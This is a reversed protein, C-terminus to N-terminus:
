RDLDAKVVLFPDKKTPRKQPDINLSFRWTKGTNPEFMTYTNEPIKVQLLGSDQPNAYVTGDIIISDILIPDKGHTSKVFGIEIDKQEGIEAIKEDAKQPGQAVPKGTRSVSAKKVAVDAKESLLAPELGRVLQDLDISELVNQYEGKENQSGLFELMISNTQPDKSLKYAKLNPIKHHVNAGKSAIEQLLRNILLNRQAQTKSDDEKFGIEEFFKKAWGRMTRGDEEGLGKHIIISDQFDKNDDEFKPLSIQYDKGKIYGSYMDVYSKYADEQAKPNYRFGEFKKSASDMREKAVQRDHPPLTEM